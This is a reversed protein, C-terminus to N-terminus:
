YTYIHINRLLTQFLFSLFASNRNKSLTTISVTNFINIVAKREYKLHAATQLQACFM